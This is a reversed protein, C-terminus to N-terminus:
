RFKRDDKGQQHKVIRCLASDDYKIKLTILLVLRYM